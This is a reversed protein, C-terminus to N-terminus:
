PLAQLSPRRQRSPVWACTRGGITEYRMVEGNRTRTEKKGWRTHFLWDHPFRKEDAAAEIATQLVYLLTSQIKQIWQRGLTNAPTRPDLRCQYLVEDAIWNGVGAFVSQDLLISKIPASRRALEHQLFSLHFDASLPDPGLTTLEPVSPLSDYWRIKGIRRPNRYVLRRGTPLHLMLKWHPPPMQHPSLVELSGSMGFHVYLVGPTNLLVWMHKGKRGTDTMFAGKLNCMLQRPPVQDVVLTDNAVEATHVFQGVLEAHAMRRWTEVEPLEPM